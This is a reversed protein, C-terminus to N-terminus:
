DIDILGKSAFLNTNYTSSIIYIFSRNIWRGGGAQGPDWRGIVEMSGSLNPCTILSSDRCTCYWSETLFMNNCLTRSQHALCSVMSAESDKWVKKQEPSLNDYYHKFDITSGHPNREKWDLACLNRPILCILALV